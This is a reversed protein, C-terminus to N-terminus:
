EQTCGDKWVMGRRQELSPIVDQEQINVYSWQLSFLDKIGVTGGGIRV